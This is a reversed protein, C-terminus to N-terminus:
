HNSVKVDGPDPTPPHNPQSTPPFIGVSACVHVHICACVHTCMNFIIFVSPEMAHMKETHMKLMRLRHTYTGWVDGGVWGSM